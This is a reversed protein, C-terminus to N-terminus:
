EEDVGGTVGGAAVVVVVVVEAGVKSDVPGHTVLVTKQGSPTWRSQRM